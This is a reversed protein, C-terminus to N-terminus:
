MRPRTATVAVTATANITVSAGGALSAHLTQAGATAGLTWDTNADGNSNTTSTVSDVTGSGAVTTWTVVAGELATATQDTVNVSVAQSLAVGAPGTQGNTSANATLSTAIRPASGSNSSCAAAALAMLLAALSARVPRLRAKHHKM